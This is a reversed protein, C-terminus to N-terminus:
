KTVEPIPTSPMTVRLRRVRRPDADLVQFEYGRPHAVIEGRQPVRGLLSTVLGGLSDIDQEDEDLELDHGSQAKFDDLDMRADAIFGDGDPKLVAADDDHEDAIDGVIEEIIDEISVLGDTGGYEDIVLALHTHSAQMKLMLDLARMSPPAFLIPRKLATIRANPALCFAGEATGELLGLVDKVHILGTPDDLTERYIPLRSHQAERFIQLLDALGITEDVAIIEARPVMVDRVKLEGFELLNGLMIREQDSLAASERESEEIVEELSERMATTDADQGTLAQILRKFLSPQDSM